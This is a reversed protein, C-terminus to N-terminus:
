YANASSAKDDAPLGGGGAQAHFTGGEEDDPGDDSGNDPIFWDGHAVMRFNELHFDATMQWTPGNSRPPLSFDFQEDSKIGSKVPQDHRDFFNYQQPNTGPVPVFYCGFLEGGRIPRGLGIKVEDIVIADTPMGKDNSVSDKDSKVTSM